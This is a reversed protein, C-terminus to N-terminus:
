DSRGKTIEVNEDGNRRIDQDPSLSKREFSEGMGHTEIHASRNRYKISWKVLALLASRGLKPTQAKNTL